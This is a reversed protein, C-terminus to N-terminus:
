NRYLNAYAAVKFKVSELSPKSPFQFILANRMKIYKAKNLQNYSYLRLLIFKKKNLNDNIKYM